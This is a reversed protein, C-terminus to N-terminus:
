SGTSESRAHRSRRRSRRGGRDVALAALAARAGRCFLTPSRPSTTPPQWAVLCLLTSPRTGRPRTTARSVRLPSRRHSASWAARPREGHLDRHGGQHHPWRHLRRRERPHGAWGAAHVCQRHREGGLRLWRRRQPRREGAGSRAARQHHRGGRHQRPDRSQRLATPVSISLAGGTVTVTAPTGGSTQASAPLTAGIALLGTAAAILMGRTRMVSMRSM